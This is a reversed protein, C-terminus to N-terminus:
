CSVIRERARRYYISGPAAQFEFGGCRSRAFMERMTQIVNNTKLALHQLGPGENQELYTQLLLVLLLLEHQGHKGCCPRGAGHGSVRAWMHKNM